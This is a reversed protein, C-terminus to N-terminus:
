GIGGWWESGGGGPCGGWQAGAQDAPRQVKALREFVSSAVPTVGKEKDKEKEKDKDKPPLAARWALTQSPSKVEM